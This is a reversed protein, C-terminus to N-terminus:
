QAQRDNNEEEGDQTEESQIENEQNPYEGVEGCSDYEGIEINLTCTQCHKINNEEDGPEQWCCTQGLVSPTVNCTGKISEADYNPDPPLAYADYTSSSIYVVLVLLFSIVVVIILHKSLM